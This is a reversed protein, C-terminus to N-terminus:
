TRIPFVNMNLIMICKLLQNQYISTVILLCINPVRGWMVRMLCIRLNMLLRLLIRLVSMQLPLGQRKLKIQGELTISVWLPLLGREQNKWLIKQKHIHSKWRKWVVLIWIYTWPSTTRMMRSRGKKRLMEVVVIKWTWRHSVGRGSYRGLPVVM